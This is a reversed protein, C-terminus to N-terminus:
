RKSRWRREAERANVRQVARVITVILFITGFGLFLLFLVMSIEFPVKLWAGSRASFGGMVLTVFELAAISYGFVALFAPISINKKSTSM